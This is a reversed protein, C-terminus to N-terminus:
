CGLNQLMLILLQFYDYKKLIMQYIRTKKLVVGARRSAGQLLALWCCFLNKKGECLSVWILMGVM